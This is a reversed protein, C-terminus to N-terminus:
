EVFSLINGEIWVTEQTFFYDFIDEFIASEWGASLNTLRIIVWNLQELQENLQRISKLRMELTQHRQYFSSHKQDTMQDPAKWVTTTAM